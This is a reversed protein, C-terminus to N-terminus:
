DMGRKVIAEKNGPLIATFEWGQDIYERLESIDIIKQPNKREKKSAAKEKMKEELEAASLELLGATDIEEETFGVTLLVMRKFETVNKQYQDETIGGYETELYKLAKSYAERMNEIITEPLIGHNLTYEHEMDGHHGMWFVRYDRRLEHVKSEAFLLQTDFYKRLVYPRLQFGARRITNRIMDGVNATSIFPASSRIGSKAPTIIPTDYTLVEGQGMRNELYMKIYSMGEPGIFTFYENDKKSLTSRIKVQVPMKLIEISGEGIKVYVFDGIRLGDDGRYDGMVQPRMGTFAMISCACRERLDAAKFILRLEDQTPIRENKLTLRQNTGSIKIKRSIKVGNFSLWSRVGKVVSEIYTGSHVGSANRFDRVFDLLLNNIEKEGLNALENPQHKVFSCFLGLRRLSVDATLRSGETINGYWRKVDEDDLLHAYKGRVM